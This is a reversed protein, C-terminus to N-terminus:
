RSDVARCLTPLIGALLSQPTVSVAKENLVQNVLVDGGTGYGLIKSTKHTKRKCDIQEHVLTEVVGLDNPKDSRYQLWVQTSAPDSSTMSVKDYSITMVSGAHMDIRAVQVWNAQPGPVDSPAENKRINALSQTCHHKELLSVRYRALEEITMEPHQKAITEAFLKVADQRAQDNPLDEPCVFSKDLDELPKTEGQSYAFGAALLLISTLCLVSRRPVRM